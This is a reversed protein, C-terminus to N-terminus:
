ADTPDTKFFVDKGRITGSARVTDLGVLALHIKDGGVCKAVKRVLIRNVAM